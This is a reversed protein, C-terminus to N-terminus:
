NCLAPNGSLRPSLNMKYGTAADTSNASYDLNDKELQLHFTKHKGFSTPFLMTVKQFICHKKPWCPPFLM